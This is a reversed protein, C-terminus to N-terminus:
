PTGNFYQDLGNAIGKVLLDQYSPDAMKTDEDPNTMYGMEIISVPVQSWNIGSMSDTEWVYEKKAGTASVMQDLIATSLRKSADYVAQCSPYPNNATPCITMIGNASSNESGNAHIRLFADAHNNNAVDAREKNSINVDNSERVMLVEYGRNKLEDRLKLSVQLTLEYEALGSTTGRTGGAVRAKTESAGPGVPEPTSDGKSQHGADICIVYGKSGQQTSGGADSKEDAAVPETTSDETETVETVATETETLATDETETEETVAQETEKEETNEEIHVDETKTVPQEQKVTDGTRQGCGAMCLVTIALVISVAAHHLKRKIRM